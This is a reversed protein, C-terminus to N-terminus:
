PQQPNQRPQLSPQAPKYSTEKHSVFINSRSASSAGKNNPPHSGSVSLSMAGRQELVGSTLYPLGHLCWTIRYASLFNTRHHSTDWVTDDYVYSVRGPARSASAHCKRERGLGTEGAVRVDKRKRTRRSATNWPWCSTDWSESPHSM